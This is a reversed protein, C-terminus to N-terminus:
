EDNLCKLNKSKHESDTHYQCGHLEGRWIRYMMHIMEEPGKQFMAWVWSTPSCGMFNDSRWSLCWVLIIAVKATYSRGFIRITQTGTIAYIWFWVCNLWLIYSINYVYVHVLICIRSVKCIVIMTRGYIPITGFCITYSHYLLHQGLSIEAFVIKPWTSIWSLWPHKESFPYHWEHTKQAQSMSFCCRFVDKSGGWGNKLDPHGVFIGHSWGM